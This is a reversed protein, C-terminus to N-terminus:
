GCSAYEASCGGTDNRPGNSGGGNNAGGGGGGSVETYYCGGGTPVCFHNMMLAQEKCYIGDGSSNNAVQECTDNAAGYFTTEVNCKFCGPGYTVESAAFAANAFTLLLAGFVSHVVLRM